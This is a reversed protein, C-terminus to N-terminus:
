EAANAVDSNVLRTLTIGFRPTEAEIVVIEGKGIVVGNAWLDVEDGICADLPILDNQKLDALESVSMNVGGLIAQVRVKISQINKINVIKGSPGAQKSISASPAPTSPESTIEPMFGANTPTELDPMQNALEDGLSAAGDGTGLPPLTDLEVSAGTNLSPLGADLSPLGDDAGGDLSPLGDLNDLGVVPNNAM